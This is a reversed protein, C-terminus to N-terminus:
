EQMWFYYGYYYSRRIMTMTETGKAALTAKDTTQVKASLIASTL